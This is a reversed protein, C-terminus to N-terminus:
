ILKEKKNSRRTHRKTRRLRIRRTHRPTHEFCTAYVTNLGHFFAITDKWHLSASLPAPSLFDYSTPSDIYDRVHDPDLTFNYKMLDRLRYQKANDSIAKTLQSLELKNNDIPIRKVHVHVIENNTNIRIVVCKISSLPEKYFIDYPKESSEFKDIWDTEVQEM